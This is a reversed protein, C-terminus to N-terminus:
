LTLRFDRVLAGPLLASGSSRSEYTGTDAILEREAGLAELNEGLVRYLTDDFRMVGLPGVVRGKEVWLCAFRTMGTIRGHNRDSWNCYWLNAIYVGTDLAALEEGPELEGAEMSLSRPYEAAANVALGYEAGSRADVLSGALRGSEVLDVPLATAFGERTFAPAMGRRHDERISVRPDLAREGALMPLLASERTRQSREGWDGWDLMSLLELLAAPALYARYRGPDPTVPPSQLLELAKRDAALKGELQAADWATGAYANKVARDGHLYCSWDLNFSRGSHWHRAGRSDAFGYEMSGSAWHGVLDLGKALDLLRSLAEEPDPLEAELERRSEGGDDPLNLYPDEPVQAIGDRLTSLAAAAREADTGPEGALPLRSALHRRGEVLELDLYHQVVRGAQRIRGRGLRVFDSSEGQYNALLREDGRLGTCLGELLRDLVERM